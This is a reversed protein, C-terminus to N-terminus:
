RTRGTRRGGTALMRMYEGGTYSDILSTFEAVRLELGALARPDRPPDVWMALLIQKRIFYLRTVEKLIEVQQAVLAYSQLEAPNFVTESLNWSLAATGGLVDDASRDTTDLVALPDVVSRDRDVASLSGAVTVTPLFARGTSRSRLSDIAEPELNYHRIAARQVQVISPERALRAVAERMRSLRASDNPVVPQAEARGAVTAVLALAALSAGSFRRIM